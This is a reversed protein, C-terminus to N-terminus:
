LFSIGWERIKYRSIITPNLGLKIESLTFRAQPSALRIDCVFALGVGGGFRPGNIMAITTQPANNMASFLETLKSYDSSITSNDTSDTSNLDMGTCFFKGEAALVVCLITSDQALRNYIRTLGEVMSSTMANGHQPRSLTIKAVTGAKTVSYDGTDEIM